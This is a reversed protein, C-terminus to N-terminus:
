PLSTSETEQSCHSAYGLLSPMLPPQGQLSGIMIHTTNSPTAQRGKPQQPQTGTHVLCPHHDFCHTLQASM